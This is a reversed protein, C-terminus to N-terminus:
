PELLSKWDFHPALDRLNPWGQVIKTESRRRLPEAARPRTGGLSQPFAFGDKWTLFASEDLRPTPPGTM